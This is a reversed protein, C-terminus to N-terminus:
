CRLKRPKDVRGGIQVAECRGRKVNNDEAVLRRHARPTSGIISIIRWAGRLALDLRCRVVRQLLWVPLGMERLAANPQIRGIHQSTPGRQQGFTM